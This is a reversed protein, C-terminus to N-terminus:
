WHGTLSVRRPSASIWLKGNILEGAVVGTASGLGDALLDYWSFHTGSFEDVVEIAFGPIFALGGSIVMRKPQEWDKTHYIITDATLGLVAGGAFHSVKDKDIAYAPLTIFLVILFVLTRM